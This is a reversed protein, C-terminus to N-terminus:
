ENDTLRLYLAELNDAQHEQLLAEPNGQAVIEGHHMLILRDAIRAVEEMDHSSFLVTVNQDALRRMLGRVEHRARPDLGAMPEDLVVLQPNHITTIAIALRKQQGGSLRVAPTKRAELLNCAELKNRVQEKDLKVHYLAAFLSLNEEATYGEFFPTSQLQTGIHARYDERWRKIHGSDPQLIGLLMSLTTTKGAGNTGILALTEGQYVEIDIGKVVERNRFKKRIGQAEILKTM